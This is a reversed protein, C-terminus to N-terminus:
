PERKDLLKKIIESLDEVTNIKASHKSLDVGFEDEIGLFLEVIELSDLQLDDYLDDSLKVEPVGEHSYKIVELLHIVRKQIKHLKM